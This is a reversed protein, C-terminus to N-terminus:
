QTISEKYEAQLLLLSNSVKRHVDAEQVGQLFMQKNWM